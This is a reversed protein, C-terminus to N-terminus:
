KAYMCVLLSYIGGIQIGLAVMLLLLIVANVPTGAMGKAGQNGIPGRIGDSGPPGVPGDSGRPGQVDCSMM